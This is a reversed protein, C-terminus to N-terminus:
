NLQVSIIQTFFNVNHLEPLCMNWFSFTKRLGQNQKQKTWNGRLPAGISMANHLPFTWQFYLFKCFFLKRQELCVEMSLFICICSQVFVFSLKCLHLNACICICICTKVFVFSLKCLYLFLYLNVCICICCLYWFLKCLGIEGKGSLNGNLSASSDTLFLRFQQTLSNGNTASFVWHVCASLNFLTSMGPYFIYVCWSVSQQRQLFTKNQFFIIKKYSDCQKTQLSNKLM